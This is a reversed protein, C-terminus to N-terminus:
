GFGKGAPGAPGASRREGRDRPGRGGPRPPITRLTVSLEYLLVSRIRLEAGDEGTRDIRRVQHWWEPYREARELVAFVRAPPAALQWAAHSRYHNRGM